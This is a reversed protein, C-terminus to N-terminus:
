RHGHGWCGSCVSIHPTPREGTIFIDLPVSPASWTSSLNHGGYCRYRGRHTINVLGLPFNPSPQGDLRVPPTLGEDKMLAFTDFGAESHCQLTLNDGPQVLSGPQASLTPERYAGPHSPVSAGPSACGVNAGPGSALSEHAGARWWLKWTDDSKLLGTGWGSEIVGLAGSPVRSLDTMQAWSTPPAPCPLPGEGTVQLHLPDSPLSWVYPYSAPSVYCRYTGGHSTSVPGVPFLAQRKERPFKLELHRPADAGGEKLLRFTQWPYPSSCSLSM